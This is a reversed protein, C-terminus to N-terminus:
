IQKNKALLTRITGLTLARDDKYKLNNDSYPDSLIELRFNTNNIKVKLDHMERLQLHNVASEALCLQESM